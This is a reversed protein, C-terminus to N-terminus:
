RKPRMTFERIQIIKILPGGLKIRKINTYFQTHQTITWMHGYAIRFYKSSKGTKQKLTPKSQLLDKQVSRTKKALKNQTAMAAQPTPPPPPSSQRSPSQFRRLCPPHDSQHDGGFSSKPENLIQKEAQFQYNLM